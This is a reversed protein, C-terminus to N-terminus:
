SGRHWREYLEQIRANEPVQHLFAQRLEVDSILAGRALLHKRAHDIATRASKKRGTACLAEAFTLRLLTEGAELRGLLELITHAERATELAEESRGRLLLVRALM